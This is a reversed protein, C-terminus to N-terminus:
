GNEEKQFTEDRTNKILEAIRTIADDWSIEEWDTAGPARHQVTKLRRENNAVQYLAAGKSCLTGENVPHEPDGETNIVKGDQASVVLGCGCGCYPCITTTEVTRQVKFEPPAAQARQPRGLLLGLSAGIGAGTGALFGRRTMEM